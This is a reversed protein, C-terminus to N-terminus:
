GAIALLQANMRGSWAYITTIELHDLTYSNDTQLTDAGFNNNKM